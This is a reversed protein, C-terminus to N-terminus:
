VPIHFSSERFILGLVPVFIVFRFTLLFGYILVEFNLVKFSFNKIYGVM